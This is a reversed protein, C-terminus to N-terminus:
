IPVDCRKELAPICKRLDALRQPLAEDDALETVIAVSDIGSAMVQAINATTIGGICTLRHDTFREVWLALTETGLPQYRLVKSLPTFVPGFAIYSPNVGRARAIEWDSHTSIGLAIGAEALAQLDATLLDEQGLHVGFAGLELALQWDDNIFLPVGSEAAYHIAEATQAKHEAGPSKVRWQLSDIGLALLRKLHPLNDVLGYLGLPQPLRPFHVASARQQVPVVQPWDEALSENLPRAWANHYGNVRESASRIALRVAAVARSLADYLTYGQALGCAIASALHCGTGHVKLPLRRHRFVFARLLDPGPLQDGFADASANLPAAFFADQIWEDSEASGARASDGGTILLHNVGLAQLAASIDACHGPEYDSPEYDNQVAGGDDQPQLLTLLAQAETLNPTLVDVRQLLAQLAEKPWNAQPFGGQSASLVPDWIVHGPYEQLKELLWPLLLNGPPLWGIKIAQPWGDTKLSQWQQELMARSLVEVAQVGQSNQATIACILTACDTDLARAMTLDAQSGAGASCDSAAISWIKARSVPGSCLSM